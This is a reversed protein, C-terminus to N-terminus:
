IGLGALCILYVLSQLGFPVALLLARRFMPFRRSMRSTALAADFRGERDSLAAQAFVVFSAALMALEAGSTSLPCEIWKAIAACITLFVPVVVILLSLRRRWMRRAEFALVGIM